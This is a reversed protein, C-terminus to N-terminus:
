RRRRASHCDRKPPVTVTTTDGVGSGGGGVGGLSTADPKTGAEGTVGGEAMARPAGTRTSTGVKGSVGIRSVKMGTCYLM